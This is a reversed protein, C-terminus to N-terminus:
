LCSCSLVKSTVFKTEKAVNQHSQLTSSHSQLSNMKSKYEALQAQLQKNSSRVSENEKRTELLQQVVGLKPEQLASDEVQHM